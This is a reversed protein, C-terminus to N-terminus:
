AWSIPAVAAKKIAELRENTLEEVAENIKRRIRDKIARDLEKPWVEEFAEDMDRSQDGCRLRNGIENALNRVYTERAKSRFVPSDEVQTALEKINEPQVMKKFYDAVLCNLLDNIKERVADTVEDDNLM